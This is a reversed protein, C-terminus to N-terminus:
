DGNGKKQRRIDESLITEQEEECEADPVLTAHSGNSAFSDLLRCDGGVGM